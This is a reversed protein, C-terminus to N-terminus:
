PRLGGRATVASAAPAPSPEGVAGPPAVGPPAVGPPAVGPPAVGPPAVGPPAVGPPAVGPPVLGAPLSGPPVLRRVFAIVDAIEDDAMIGGFAPMQGKGIRISQRLQDNSMQAQFEVKTLDRPPKVLGPRLTGRGDAGHCGSCTRQFIRAGRGAPTPDRAECGLVSWLGVVTLWSGLRAVVGRKM